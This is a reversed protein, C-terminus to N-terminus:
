VYAQVGAQDMKKDGCITCMSFLDFLNNFIVPGNNLTVNQPYLKKRLGRNNRKSAGLKPVPKHM